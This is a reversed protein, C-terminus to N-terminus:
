DYKKRDTWIVFRCLWNTHKGTKSIDGCAGCIMRTPPPPPSDPIKTM